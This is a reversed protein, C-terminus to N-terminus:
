SGMFYLIIGQNYLLMVKEQNGTSRGSGNQVEADRKPDRFYM